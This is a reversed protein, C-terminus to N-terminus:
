LSYTSYIQVNLLNLITNIPIIYSKGSQTGAFLQGIIENNDNFVMCGSDGSTAILNAVIVNKFLAKITKNNYTVGQIAGISLVTGSTLGTIFGVKKVNTGIINEDTNFGKVLGLQRIKSSVLSKNKILALASDVYNIPQIDGDEFQLPIFDSLTAIKNFGSIGGSMFSPQIVPTGIPFKNLNTLVHNNSLIYYRKFIKLYTRTVICGLTGSLTSGEDFFRDPSIGCGYELPRFKQSIAINGNLAHPYSTQIVDTNIGMYTKPIINNSTLYKSAVKYDVLVHICPILTNIKNIYKFGVGVGNVNELNLLAHYHNHTIDLINEILKDIM